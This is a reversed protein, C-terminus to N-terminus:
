GLSYPGKPFFMDIIMEPNLTQPKPNGIYRLRELLLLVFM